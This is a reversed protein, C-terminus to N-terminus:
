DLSLPLLVETEIELETSFEQASFNSRITRTELGLTKVCKLVEVMSDIGSARNPVSLRIKAVGPRDGNVSALSAEVELNKRKLEEVFGNLEQIEKSAMQIISKKDSKTGFPLMSHLAMYSQRQKERRMRENMMHRFGREKEHEQIEIRPHWSRTLFKMMRKNVNGPNPGSGSNAAGFGIRPSETYAVFASRSVPPAEFAESWFMDSQFDQPFFLDMM